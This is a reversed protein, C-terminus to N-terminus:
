TTSHLKNKVALKFLIPLCYCLTASRDHTKKLCINIYTTPQYDVKTSQILVSTSYDTDKIPLATFFLSTESNSLTLM